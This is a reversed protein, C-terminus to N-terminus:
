DIKNQIAWHTHQLSELQISNVCQQLALGDASNSNKKNRLSHNSKLRSNQLTNKKCTAVVAARDESIAVQQREVRVHLAFM